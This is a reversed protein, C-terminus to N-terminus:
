TERGKNGACLFRRGVERQLMEYFEASEIRTKEEPTLWKMPEEWHELPPVDLTLWGPRAECVVIGPLKVPQPDNVITLTVDAAPVTEASHPRPQLEIRLRGVPRPTHPSVPLGIARPDLTPKPAEARPRRCGTLIDMPSDVQRQKVVAVKTYIRTTELHVHGLLAQIMRIDTGEEFLHTAFSHRMSHPTAAKGIGALRVTRKMVRQVTRPSLYRGTRDGPFVYADPSYTKALARLLPEFSAPLMVQRDTRGKGQWITVCSRDFDFDRYRLRVVESVRAGLAYLLGILLKDRLSIAATLLRIIEQVSLVVPLRKPRRPTQLGLTISRGCMKDFVTRIASLQTSIWSSGKGSDVLMELYERVHDRTIRHPPGGFWRLFGVLANRYTKISKQSYFRIKMERVIKEVFEEPTPFGTVVPHCTALHDELPQRPAYRGQPPKFPRGDNYTNSRLRPQTHCVM